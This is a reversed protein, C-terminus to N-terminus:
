YRRRKRGHTGTPRLLMGARTVEGARLCSTRPKSDVLGISRRLLKWFESLPDVRHALLMQHCNDAGAGSTNIACALKCLGPMTDNQQIAIDLWATQRFIPDKQILLLHLGPQTFLELFDQSVWFNKVKAMHAHSM